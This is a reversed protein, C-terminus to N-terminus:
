LLYPDDTGALRVPMDAKKDEHSRARVVSV